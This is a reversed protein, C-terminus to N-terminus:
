KRKKSILIIKRGGDRTWQEGNTGKHYFWLAWWDKYNEITLKYRSRNITIREILWLILIIEILDLNM